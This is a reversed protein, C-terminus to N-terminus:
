KHCLSKASIILWFLSIRAWAVINFIIAIYSIAAGLKIQASNYNSKM